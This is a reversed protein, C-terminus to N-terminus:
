AEGILAIAEQAWRIRARAQAAQGEFVHAKLRGIRRHDATPREKLREKLLPTGLEMLADRHAEWQELLATQAEIYNELVRQAEDPPVSDFYLAQLAFPDRNPPTAHVTVVWENLDQEGTPTLSFVNTSLGNLGQERSAVVLGAAELRKLAGYVQSQPASWVWNQAGEFFRALSYGNM